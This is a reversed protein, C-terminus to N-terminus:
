CRAVSAGIWISVLGGSYMRLMTSVTNMPDWSAVIWQMRSTIDGTSNLQLRKMQEILNPDSEELEDHSVVREM